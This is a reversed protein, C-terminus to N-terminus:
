WGRQIKIVRPEHLEAEDKRIAAAYGPEDGWKELCRKFHEREKVLLREAIHLGLAIADEETLRAFTGGREDGEVPRFHRGMCAGTEADVLVMQVKGCSHVIANRYYVTGKRDWDAIYTVLDNKKFAKTM